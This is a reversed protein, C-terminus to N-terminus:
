VCLFHSDCIQSTVLITGLISGFVPPRCKSRELFLVFFGPVRKPWPLGEEPQQGRKGDNGAATRKSENNGAVARRQWEWQNTTADKGAGNDSAWEM